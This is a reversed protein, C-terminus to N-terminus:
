PAPVAEIFPLTGTPLMTTPLVGNWREAKTLEVLQPNERLADGKAKIAAAQAEGSIRVAEAAAKAKALNSDAEAQAQTVTIQAAIQQQALEQQKRQVEVTARQKEAIANEYDASFKIDKIQVSEVIIPGTIGSQMAELVDANLKARQQIATQADYQGFINKYIAPVRQDLLRAVMADVSGYEAYLAAGTGAPVHYNISLQIVAPQQDKSYSEMGDYNKAHSQLTIFEVDDIWPTKFHLGPGETGIIAGNRLVVAEAGQDVTYWSGFITTIGILFSIAGLVVYRM